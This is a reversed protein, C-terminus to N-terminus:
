AIGIEVQFVQEVHKLALPGIPGVRGPRVLKKEVNEVLKRTVLAILVMYVNEFNIHNDVEVHRVVALGIPGSQGNQVNELIVLFEKRIKM